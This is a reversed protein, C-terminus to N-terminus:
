RINEPEKKSLNSHGKKMFNHHCFFKKEEFAYCLEAFPLTIELNFFSLDQFFLYSFHWGAGKGGKLLVQGQVMSGGRKKLKESKGGRPSTIM